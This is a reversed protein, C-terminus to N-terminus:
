EKYVTGDALIIIDYEYTTHALIKLEEAGTIDVDIVFPATSNRVEDSVFVSVGDVFVEFYSDAGGIDDKNLVITATFNTYKGNLLYKLYYGDYFSYSESYVNGFNDENKIM